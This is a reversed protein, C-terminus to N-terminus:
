PLTTKFGVFAGVIFIAVGFVGVIIPTIYSITLLKKGRSEGEKVNYDFLVTGANKYKDYAPEVTAKFFSLAEERRGKRILDFFQQRDKVYVSRVAVLKEYNTRDAADFISDEYKKLCIDTIKSTSEIRQLYREQDES